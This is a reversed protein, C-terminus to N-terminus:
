LSFSEQTWRNVATNDPHEALHQDSDWVGQDHQLVAWQQLPFSWLPRCARRVCVDKDRHHHRLPLGEVTSPHGKFLFGVYLSEDVFIFYIFSIKFVDVFFIERFGQLIKKKRIVIKSTFNSRRCITKLGNRSLCCWRTTLTALPFCMACLSMAMDVQDQKHNCSFCLYFRFICWYFTNISVWVTGLLYFRQVCVNPRCSGVACSKGCHVAM